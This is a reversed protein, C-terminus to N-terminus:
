VIPCRVRILSQPLECYKELELPDNLSPQSSLVGIRERCKDALAAKEQRFSGDKSSIQDAAEL